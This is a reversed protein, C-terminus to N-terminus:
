FVQVDVESGREVLTVVRNSLLHVGHRQNVHGAM